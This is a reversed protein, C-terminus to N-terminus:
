IKKVINFYEELTLGKEYIQEAAKKGVYRFHWPEYQYGTIAGKGKPYRLIYGFRHANEALWKGEATTEFSTTLSCGVSNASIDMALGTQHESYGPVAVAMVAQERGVRSVEADFLEVQRKYSRYGSVAILEIGSKKAEHFMNELAIAAEQRLYSKEIDQNGFSFAVNPRVLDGPVYDEPLAYQKNVLAMINTPNQIVSKGAVQQIKNFYAAELTLQNNEAENQRATQETKNSQVNETQTQSGNQDHENIFPARKMLGDFQSCGTLLILSLGIQWHLRRM